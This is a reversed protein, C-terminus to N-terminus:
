SLIKEQRLQIPTLYSLEDSIGTQDTLVMNNIEKRM